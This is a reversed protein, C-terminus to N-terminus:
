DPNNPAFSSFEDSTESLMQDGAEEPADHAEPSWGLSPVGRKRM